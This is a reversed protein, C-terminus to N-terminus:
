APGRVAGGPSPVSARYRGARIFRDLTRVDTVDHLAAFRRRLWSGDVGRDVCAGLAGGGDSSGLQARVKTRAYVYEPLLDGFVLRSLQSKRDELLLFDEPLTLYADVAAAYPQVVPLNWAAFIGIERHCTELGRVLNARLMGPPLRPLDYFVAGRYQEPHYDVLFENALDGTFVLASSQSADDERARAIAEALAANVLGAHVNFDRWDIGEVLVLDLKELLEEEGVTAYLLPLGLDRAVREAAVRDESDDSGRRELDFSVAVVDSFQEGVLAAIGSSDLGGSLCVFARASPHAAAIAALYGTLKSRIREAVREVRREHGSTASWAEPVLSHEVRVDGSLVLELVHGRPFPRIADFRHGLEVLRKPRAAVVVTGDEDLTWFLKNLGLPDRLMRWTGSSVQAVFAAAGRLERPMTSAAVFESEDYLGKGDWAVNADLRGAIRMSTM